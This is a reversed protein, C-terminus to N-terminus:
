KRAFTGSPRNTLPSINRHAPFNYSGHDNSRGMCNPSLIAWSKSRPGPWREGGTVHLSVSSLNHQLDRSNQM